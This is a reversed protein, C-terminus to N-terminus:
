EEEALTEEVIGARKEMSMWEVQQDVYPKACKIVRAANALKSLRIFEEVNDTKIGPNRFHIADSHGMSM